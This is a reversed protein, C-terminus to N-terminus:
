YSTQPIAKRSFLNVSTWLPSPASSLLAPSLAGSGKQSNLLSTGKKEDLKYDGLLSDLFSHCFLTKNLSNSINSFVMTTTQLPASYMIKLNQVICGIGPSKDYNSCVSIVTSSDFVWDSGYTPAPSATSSYLSKGALIANRAANSGTTLDIFM